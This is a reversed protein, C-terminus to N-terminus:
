LLLYLHSPMKCGLSPLPINSLFFLWVFYLLRKVMLHFINPLWGYYYLCMEEPYGSSRRVSKAPVLGYHSNLLTYQPRVLTTKSFDYHAVAFDDNRCSTAVCLM